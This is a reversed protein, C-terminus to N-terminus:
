DYISEHILFLQYNNLSNNYSRKNGTKEGAESTRAHPKTQFYVGGPIRHEIMMNWTLIASRPHVGNEYM